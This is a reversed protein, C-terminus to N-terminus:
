LTNKGNRLEPPKAKVKRVILAIIGGVALVGGLFRFLISMLVLAASPKYYIENPDNPNVWITVREGESFEPPYSSVKSAYSYQKGGLEYEFVPSYTSRRKMTGASGRPKHEVMEVVVATVEETCSSNKGFMISLITGFLFFLVGVGIPIAFIFPPIKHEM